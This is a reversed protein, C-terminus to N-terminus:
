NFFFITKKDIQVQLRNLFTILILFPCIEAYYFFSLTFTALNKLYIIDNLINKMYNLIQGCLNSGSLNFFLGYNQVNQQFLDSLLLLDSFKIM